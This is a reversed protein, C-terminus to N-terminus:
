LRTVKVKRFQELDEQLFCVCSNGVPFELKYYPLKHACTWQYLTNKKIGLYKAADVANLPTKGEFEPINLNCIYTTTERERIVPKKEQKKNETM